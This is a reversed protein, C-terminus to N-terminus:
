VGRGLKVHTVEGPKVRLHYHITVFHEFQCEWSGTVSFCRKKYPLTIFDVQFLRKM